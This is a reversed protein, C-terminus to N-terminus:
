GSIVCGEPVPPGGGAQSIATVSGMGDWTYAWITKRPVTPIGSTDFLRVPSAMDDTFEAAPVTDVHNNTMYLHLSAQLAQYEQECAEEDQYASNTASIRILSVTVIAALVLAVAALIVVIATLLRLRLHSGHATILKTHQRPARKRYSVDREM